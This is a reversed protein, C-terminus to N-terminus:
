DKNLQNMVAVSALGLFGLGLLGGGVLAWTPIAPKAPAQPAQPAPAATQKPGFLGGGITLIDTVTTLTSERRQEREEDTLDKKGGLGLFGANQLAYAQGGYGNYNQFM